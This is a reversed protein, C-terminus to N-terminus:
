RVKWGNEWKEFVAEVPVPTNVPFTNGQRLNGVKGIFVLNKNEINKALIPALKQFESFQVSPTTRLEFKIKVTKNDINKRDIVKAVDIQHSYVWINLDNQHVIENDDSDAILGKGKESLDVKPDFFHKKRTLYSNGILQELERRIAILKPDEINGTRLKQTVLMPYGNQARFLSIAQEDSLSGSSCSALMTAALLILSVMYGLTKM